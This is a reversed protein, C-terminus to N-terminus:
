WATPRASRRLARPDLVQLRRPGLRHLVGSSELQTIARSFTEPSIGLNEAIERAPVPLRVIALGPRAAEPILAVLAAAVRPLAGRMSLEEIRDFAGRLRRALAALLVLAVQPDARIARELADRSVALAEVADLTEAGAPYAGGDLFPLFGFVEGPGFVYLPVIRGSEQTRFARVHGREIVVLRGATEGERWLVYGPPYARRELYPRLAGLAESALGGM